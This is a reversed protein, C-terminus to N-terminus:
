ASPCVAMIQPAVVQPPPATAPVTRVKAVGGDGRRVTPLTMVPAPMVAPVVTVATALLV